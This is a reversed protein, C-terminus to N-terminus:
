LVIQLLSYTTTGFSFQNLPIVQMLATATVSIAGAFAISEPSQGHYVDSTIKVALFIGTFGVMLIGPQWTWLLTRPHKLGTWDRDVFEWVPKEREAVGFSVLFALVATSQFLVEAVSHDPFGVFLYSFFTSLLFILTVAGALAAPRDAFRKALFYTPLTVLAGAIPPM